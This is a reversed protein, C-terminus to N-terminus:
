SPDTPSCAPAGASLVAIEALGVTLLTAARSRNRELDALQRDLQRRGEDIVIELDDDDLRDIDGTFESPAGFTPAEVGPRLLALVYLLYVRAEAFRGDV